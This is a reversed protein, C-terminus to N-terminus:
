RGAEDGTIWQGVVVIQVERGKARDETIEVRRVDTEVWKRVMAAVRGKGTKDQTDIGAGRRGHPRGLQPGARESPM